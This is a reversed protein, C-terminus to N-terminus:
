LSIQRISGGEVGGRKENTLVKVSVFLTKVSNRFNRIKKTKIHVNAKAPYTLDCTRRVPPTLDCPRRMPPTLLCPRRREEVTVRLKIRADPYGSPLSQLVSLNHRLIRNVFFMLM